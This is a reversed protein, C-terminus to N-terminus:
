LGETLSVKDESRDFESFKILATIGVLYFFRDAYYFETFGLSYAIFSNIDALVLGLIAATYFFSAKNAYRNSYSIAAVVMGILSLGYFYFLARIITSSLKEPVMDVLVFLMFLNLVLVSIFLIKQFLSTKLDKLDPVVMKIVLIYATIRLIFILINSLENEYTLLLLDSILFLVFFGILDKNFIRYSLFLVFFIFVSIFRVKNSFDLDYNFIVYLNVILLFIFIFPLIITKNLKM